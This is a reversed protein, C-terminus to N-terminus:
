GALVPRTRHELPQEPVAVARIGDRATGSQLLIAAEEVRDGLGGSTEHPRDARAVARPEALIELAHAVDLPANLAGLLLRRALKRVHITGRANRPAEFLMRLQHEIQLHQSVLAIQGTDDREHQPGLLAVPRVRLDADRINM